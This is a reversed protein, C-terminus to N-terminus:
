EFFNNDIDCLNKANRDKDSLDPNQIPWRININQDSWIISRDDEPCYEAGSVKYMLHTNDELVCYGHAFGIPVWLMNHNKDSLIASVWKGYTPSGRRIDVAVDFIKGQMVCVLKGQANPNRQFHLGRIVSAKSFSHNDQVFNVNIGNIKFVSEKYTEIFFGREDAFPKSEVLIVDPIELSKFVFPM